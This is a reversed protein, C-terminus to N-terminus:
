QQAVENGDSRLWRRGAWRLGRWGGFGALCVTGIWLLIAPLDFLITIMASAYTALSDLGDRMALKLQYLPRWNLGFVQAEAQTHLSVTIAVTEVQQSLANFETQQQEIQGRVDSLKEDVALLDKVTHAQKLITLYQAEEARLNRLTADQDVYQRTVDQADVKKSEVRLGLSQIQSNAEDLRAAPVRITLTAAAFTQGVDSSVLYGGLREAIKTISDAMEAPNQVLMEISATRIIKRGATASSMKSTAPAFMLKASVPMPEAIEFRTAKDAASNQKPQSALERQYAVSAPYTAADSSRHLTPLTLAAVILTATGGIAMWQLPKRFEGWSYALTTM